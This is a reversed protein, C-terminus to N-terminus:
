DLRVWRSAPRFRGLTTRIREMLSQDGPKLLNLEQRLAGELALFDPFRENPNARMACLIAKELAVPIAPNIHRPPVLQNRQKRALVAEFTKDGDSFPAVGTLMHYLIAGFNYMETRYDLPRLELQEVSTYFPEDLLLQLEKQTRAAQVVRSLELDDIYANSMEDIYVNRPSLSSHILGNSHIFMVALATQLLEYLNGAMFRAAIYIYQNDVIGFDYIPQLHMHELAVINRTFTVFDEELAERPLPVSKVDIIKVVAFRKLSQQTARYLAMAVRRGVMEQLVFDGIQSNSLNDLM